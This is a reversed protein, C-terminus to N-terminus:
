KKRRIARLKASRSRPNKSTEEPTPTLPKPTLIEFNDEAESFINKVIRDELSHFSIVVCTGGPSLLSLASPLAVKLENLEDNVAIRLAQFVRTAPHIKNRKKIVSNIIDVLNKTTQIPKLRRANIVADAIRRSYREEGLKTFLEHLEKRGLGNILDKATVQLEKDMRMDLPADNMFSFGRESKDLQLSSVGLDFLIGDIKERAVLEDLKSFEGKKLEIKDTLNQKNINSQAIEIIEQDRDIGIVRAGKKALEMTHGAAGLTADIITKGPQPDILKIIEEVMVPTHTKHKLNYAKPQSNNM